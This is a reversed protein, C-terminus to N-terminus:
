ILPLNDNPASVRVREFMPRLLWAMGLVLLPDTIEPTRGPLAQQVGELALMLGGLILVTMRHSVGLYRVLFVLSGYLYLKEILPPIAAIPDGGLSGAFPIWLFGGVWSFSFPRLAAVAIALALVGAVAMLTRPGSRLLPYLALALALGIVNAPSSANNVFLSEVALAAVCLAALRWGGWRQLVSYRALRLFVLWGALNRLVDVAGTERWHLLPPLGNKIYQPDLTPVLAFWRYLLWLAMLATAVVVFQARPLDGPQWRRLWLAGLLGVGLGCAMGAINLMADTGSPYRDPFWFQLYQLGLALVAGGLLAWLRRARMMPSALLLGYPMFLLLNGLLDSRSHRAEPRLLQWWDAASPTHAQYHFPFLSGYVVLALVLWFLQRQLRSPESQRPPLAPNL